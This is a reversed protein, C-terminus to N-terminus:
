IMPDGDELISLSASSVLPGVSQILYSELDGNDSLDTRTANIGEIYLSSLEQRSTNPDPGKPDRLIDLGTLSLHRLTSMQLLYVFFLRDPEAIPHFDFTVSVLFNTQYDM